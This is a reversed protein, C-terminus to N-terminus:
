SFDPNDSDDVVIFGKTLRQSTNQFSSAKKDIRESGRFFEERRRVSLLYSTQDEVHPERPHAPNFQLSSKGFGAARDRDNEHSGMAICREAVHEELSPSGAEQVFGHSAVRQQPFDM